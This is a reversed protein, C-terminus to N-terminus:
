HTLAAELDAGPARRRWVVFGDLETRQYGETLFSLLRPYKEIPFKTFAIYGASATDVVLEPPHRQLDQFLLDWARPLELARSPHFPSWWAPTGEVAGVLYTVYPFRTAPRREALHYLASGYGWILIRADPNTQERIHQALARAQPTAHPISLLEPDVLSSMKSQAQGLVLAALAIATATRAVPWAPARAWLHALLGAALLVLPPFLQLYYHPFFRGGLVIPVLSGLLWLPLLLHRRRDRGLERMLGGLGAIWVLPVFSAQMLLTGRFRALGDHLNNGHAIYYRNVEVTWYYFERLSGLAGLVVLTALWIAAFGAALMATSRARRALSVGPTIVLSTAVIPLQMGAQQKFLSAVGLL